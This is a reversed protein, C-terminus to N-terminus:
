FGEMKVAQDPNVKAIIACNVILQSFVTKGSNM